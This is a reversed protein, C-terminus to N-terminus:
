NEAFKGDEKGWSELVEDRKKRADGWMSAEIHARRVLRNDQSFKTCFYHTKGLPADGIITGLVGKVREWNYCFYEDNYSREQPDGFMLLVDALTTKGPELADIDKQHIMARGSILGHEPLPIYICGILTLSIFFLMVWRKYM